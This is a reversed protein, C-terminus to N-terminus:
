QFDDFDGKLNFFEIANKNLINLAVAYDIEKIEALKSVIYKLNTSDNKTGRLPEPALYPSDTELLIKSLDIRKAVEVTKKNNKFTLTGGIGLLCGLKIFREAMEVSSSFCHIDAKIKYQSLINYTDEIADRSHVIIPKNYKIALEIQKIFLEKQEEKNDSRYHYDLGIEGIAVVKPNTLYSELIKLNKDTIEDINEPHYGVAAYFNPNNNALEVVMKNTEENIANNIIIYERLKTIIENLNDYEFKNIHAHTDIIM